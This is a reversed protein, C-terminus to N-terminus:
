RYLNTHKRAIYARPSIGLRSKFVRSFYLPDKYGCLCSIDSVNKYGSEILACATQIRAKTIYETITIHYTNKFITSIYKKDYSVERSIKDLTLESNSVNEDIIRKILEATDMRPQEKVDDKLLSQICSFTYLLISECRLDAVIKSDNDLNFWVKGVEDLGTFVCRDENIGLMDMICDARIGAYTIRSYKFDGVPEITCPATPFCVFVDGACLKCSDNKIHLKGEGELVYNIGYASANKLGLFSQKKTETSFGLIRLSNTDKTLGFVSGCLLFLLM